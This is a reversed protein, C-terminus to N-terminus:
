EAEVPAHAPLARQVRRQWTPLRPRQRSWFLHTVCTCDSAGFGPLPMTVGPMGAMLAAWQHERRVTDHTYWVEELTTVARLSDIHWHPRLTRRRHHAVRAHVGGPGFASGIYLYYGPQGQLTGLKGIPLCVPASAALLLVYTGRAKLM